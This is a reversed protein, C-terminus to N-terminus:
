MITRLAGAFPRRSANRWGNVEGDSSFAPGRQAYEPLKHSNGGRKTDRKSVLRADRKGYVRAHLRACSLPRHAAWTAPCHGQAIRTRISRGLPRIYRGGQERGQERRPESRSSEGGQEPPDDDTCLADMCRRQRDLCADHSPPPLLSKIGHQAVQSAVTPYCRRHPLLSPLPPLSPLPDAHATLSLLPLAATRVALRTVYHAFSFSLM